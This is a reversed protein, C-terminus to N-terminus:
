PQWGGLPLGDSRIGLSQYAALDFTEAFFHISGDALAFCCGGQHASGFTTMHFRDPPAPAPRNIPSMTACLGIPFSCSKFKGTTCKSGPVNGATRFSSAWSAGWQSSAGLSPAYDTEGLMIVNSAGDRVDGFRVASNNFFLGNYFFARGDGDGTCKPAPGGGQCAYYNIPAVANSANSKRSSPCVYRDCWEKQAADNPTSLATGNDTSLGFFPQDIKFRDFRVSEELFPLILVTWPARGSVNQVGTKLECNNVPDLPETTVAGAPLHGNALEFGLVAIGLQKLNNKCHVLRAAERSSQLAPFLLAVLLGVIAVVVLIEVLTLGRRSALSAAM